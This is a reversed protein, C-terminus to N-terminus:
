SKMIDVQQPGMVDILAKTLQAVINVRQDLQSPKACGNALESIGYVSDIDRPIDHLLGINRGMHVAYESLIFRCIAYYNRDAVQRSCLQATDASSMSCYESTQECEDFQCYLPKDWNETNHSHKVDFQDVVMLSRGDVILVELTSESVAFTGYNVHTFYIGYQSKNDTLKSAISLLQKALKARVSWSADHFEYLPRMDGAEIAVYRGCAGIYSPFPWGESRPFTQFLIPEQNLMLTTVLQIRERASLDIADLKEKYRDMIKDLLRETPCHTMNSLGTVHPTMWRSGSAMLSSAAAQGVNCGSPQRGMLCLRTEWSRLADSRGLKKLLVVKDNVVGTHINHVNVYDLLRIKSWGTFRVKGDHAAECLTFGFCAPCKDVELFSDRTL